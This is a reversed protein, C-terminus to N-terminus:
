FATALAELLKTTKAKSAPCRASMGLSQNLRTQFVKHMQRAERFAGLLPDRTTQSDHVIVDMVFYVNKATDRVLVYTHQTVSYGRAASEEHIIEVAETPKDQRVAVICQNDRLEFDGISDLRVLRGHLEPGAELEIKFDREVNPRDLPAVARVTASCFLATTVALIIKRM